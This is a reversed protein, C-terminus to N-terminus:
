RRKYMYADMWSEHEEDGWDDAAQVDTRGKSAHEANWLVKEIYAKARTVDQSEGVVLVNQNASNERPISVKVKFNNQIHRLESGAKGIIFSYQWNAIELEEHTMGPHTVEHHTYMVIDNVVTKAKEVDEAAGAIKVPYKKSKASADKPVPPIEIEVALSEKIKRIIAGQKGILDPFVTPHVHISFETFNDFAMSMYGKDMLERIAHEAQSVAHPPGTITVMDGTTDIRDCGTKETILKINAGKPGIVRGIKAEPVKIQASSAADKPAQITAGDKAHQAAVAAGAEKAAAIAAAGAGTAGVAQSVGPGRSMNAPAMGPIYPQPAGSKTTTPYGHAAKMKEIEANEAARRQAKAAVKKNL